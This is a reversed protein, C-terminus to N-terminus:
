PTVLPSTDGDMVAGILAFKTTADLLEIAQARGAEGLRAAKERDQLLEVVAAAFTEPDDRILLHEGDTVDLSAGAMKTSVVPLGAQLYDILKINVGSGIVAPNVGVWARSLYDTISPVNAHVQVGPRRLRATLAPSPDRGVVELRAQPLQRCVLPWVKDVFWAVAETNTQVSLAGTFVVTPEPAPARPVERLAPDSAFTPLYFTRAGQAARTRADSTSIDAHATLWDARNLSAELRRIKGAEALYALKRPGRTGKGLDRHYDVELNHQRIVTPLRLETALAQLIRVSKEGCGLLGTADPVMVKIRRALGAPVPRSWTTFPETPHAVGYGAMRRPVPLVPVGLEREYEAVDIPTSHPLVVLALVGAQAAATLMGWNEKRGGNFVPLMESDAVAVWRYRSLSTM